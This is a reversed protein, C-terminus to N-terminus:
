RFRVEWVRWQGAFGQFVLEDLRTDSPFRYSTYITGPRPHEYVRMAVSARRVLASDALLSGLSHSSAYLLQSLTNTSDSLESRASRTFSYTHGNEYIELDSAVVALLAAADRTVLADRLPELRALPEPPLKGFGEYAFVQISSLRGAPTFEVSYNRNEYSWLVLPPDPEREVTSPRGLRSSVRATDSGLVLGLFPYMGTGSDGAVQISTANDPRDPAFKFVMYAHHARDIIYIRNVWRDDTRQEQAQMGLGQNISKIHQGLLFGNLEYQSPPSQAIAPLPLLALAFTWPRPHVHSSRAGFNATVNLSMNPPDM